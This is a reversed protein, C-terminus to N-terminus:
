DENFTSGQDADLSGESEVHLLSATLIKAIVSDADPRQEEREILGGVYALQEWVTAKHVVGTHYTEMANELILKWNCRPKVM